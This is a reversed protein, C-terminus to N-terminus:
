MNLESPSRRHKDVWFAWLVFLWTGNGAIAITEVGPPPPGFVNALYIGGLLVVMTWLGWSGVRDKPSTAKVYLFIGGGYMVLELLITAAPYNWLGFGFYPGGGFALPLDPRHVLLDLIWHSFVVLGVIIANNRDRRFAFYLVGLIVSWLLCGVLSHTVPYDYFDLPTLATNGPDIRVHEIGLLLFLPWLLDVFQASMFLTGLSLKRARSRTAFAVAFHGIFM